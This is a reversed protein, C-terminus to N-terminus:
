GMSITHLVEGGNFAEAAQAVQDYFSTLQEVPRYLEVMHGLTAVCDIMVFRFGDNMEADLAIQHGDERFRRIAGDLDDDFLAVHHIGTRGSGLPYMDHFPSADANHQQVFEVMVSGWQGYASSHDLPREVGRHMARRLPIHDAVFYPGSGFSRHHALAAERVDEVFYAIQRIPLRRTRSEPAIDRM